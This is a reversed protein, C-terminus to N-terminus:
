KYRRPCKGRKKPVLIAQAQMPVRCRETGAHWKGRPCALRVLAKGSRKTRFSRKDFKKKSKLRRHCYRKM